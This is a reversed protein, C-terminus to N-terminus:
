PMASTQVDVSLWARAARKNLRRLVSAIRARIATAPIGYVVGLERPKMGERYRRRLLQRDDPPLLLLLRSVQKQLEELHIARAARLDEFQVQGGEEEARDLKADLSKMHPVFVGRRLLTARRARGIRASAKLWSKVFGKVYRSAFPWFERQPESRLAAQWLGEFAAVQIEEEMTRNLRWKRALARAYERTRETHAEILAVQAPTAAPWEVM